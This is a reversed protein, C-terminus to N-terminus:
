STTDSESRSQLPEGGGMRVTEPMGLQTTRKLTACQVEAEVRQTALGQAPETLFWGGDANSFLLIYVNADLLPPPHPTWM